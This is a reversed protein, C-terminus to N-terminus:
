NYKIYKYVVLDGKESCFSVDRVGANSKFSVTVNYKDRFSVNEKLRIKMKGYKMEFHEYSRSGHYTPSNINLYLERSM